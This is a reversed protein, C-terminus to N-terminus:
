GRASGGGGGGRARQLANRAQRQRARHLPREARAGAQAAARCCPAVRGSGGGICAQAELRRRVVTSRREHVRWGCCLGVWGARELEYACSAAKPPMLANFAPGHSCGRQLRGGVCRGCAMAGQGLVSSASTCRGHPSQVAREAAPRRRCRVVRAGTLNRARGAGCASRRRHRGRLKAGCVERRGVAAKTLPRAKHATREHFTSQKARGGALPRQRDLAM